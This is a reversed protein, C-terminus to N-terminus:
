GRKLQEELKHHLETVDQIKRLEETLEIVQVSQGPGAVLSKTDSGDANVATGVIKGKGNYLVSLKVVKAWEPLPEPVLSWQLAQDTVDGFTVMRLDFTVPYDNDNRVKCYYSVTDHWYYTRSDYCTNGVEAVYLPRDARSTPMAQFLAPGQDSHNDRFQVLGGGSNKDPPPGYMQNCKLVLEWTGGAGITNGDFHTVKPM